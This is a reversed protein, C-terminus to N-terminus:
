NEGGTMALQVTPASANLARTITEIAEGSKIMRETFRLLRWGLIAALNDRSCDAEYGSARNHRGPDAAWIGGQVEALVMYTPWAFDARYLREPRAWLHQALPEPLGAELIRRFLMRELKTRESERAVRKFDTVVGSGDTTVIAEARPRPLHM